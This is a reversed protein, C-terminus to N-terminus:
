TSMMWYRLMGTILIIGIVEISNRLYMLFLNRRAKMNLHSTHLVRALNAEEFTYM